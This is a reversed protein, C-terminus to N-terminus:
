GAGGLQHTTTGATKFAPHLFSQYRLSANLETPYPCSDYLFRRNRVDLTNDSCNILLTEVHTLSELVIEIFLLLHLALPQPQKRLLGGVFFFRSANAKRRLKGCILSDLLPLLITLGFALGTPALFSSRCSKVYKMSSSFLLSSMM